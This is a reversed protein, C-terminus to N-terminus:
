DSNQHMRNAIIGLAVAAIATFATVLGLPGATGDHIISVFGAIIGSLGVELSGFAAAASGVSHKVASM